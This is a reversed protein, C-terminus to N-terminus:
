YAVGLAIGDETLATGKQALKMSITHKGTETGVGRGVVMCNKWDEDQTVKTTISNNIGSLEFVKDKILGSIVDWEWEAEPKVCMVVSCASQVRLSSRSIMRCLRESGGEAGEVLMFLEQRHHAAGEAENIEVKLARVYSNSGGGEELM